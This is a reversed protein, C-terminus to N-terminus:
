TKKSNLTGDKHYIYIYIFIYYKKSEEFTLSVIKLKYKILIENSLM